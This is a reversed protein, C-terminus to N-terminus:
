KNKSIKKQEIVRTFFDILDQAHYDFSFQKRNSWVNKRIENMKKKDKLQNTLNDMSDFFIGMGLKNILSESAVINGCNKRQLMPVGAAALTTMRAPYNLDDWTCKLLENNNNSKFLHLWGADYQSFEEVWHKPKCYPHFHLFKNEELQSMEYIWNSSFNQNFNGYLHMHINYRALEQVDSPLIGYPRGSSVIHIAGDSESLLPMKNDTFWKGSPLDGDLIYSLRNNDEIFQDYWNKIEPSIYIRGDANAYLEILEKWIGYQRCYFPGEKFHWVFPIDLNARMICNALPVAQFNLLAYIIDPKIEEIQNQLDDLNFDTINGFPLPGVTNYCHPDDIWLGYLKHGLNELSCIREPNYALEGVILIKLKDQKVPKKRFDKYYDIEDILNGVTSQFIIPDEVNYYRKYLYIGGTKSEQIIKHRQHPHDVWEGSVIGTGVSVGERSLSNWFMKDLDDTVLEKREIWKCTTKKHMVQVLQLSTGRIKDTTSNLIAGNPTDTYGYNVGAYCLFIDDASKIKDLLSSLHNAYFIDDSPLYCIYNFSAELLGRNLCYGLGENKENKYYRIRKDLFYNTLTDETHINRVM